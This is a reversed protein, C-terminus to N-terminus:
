FDRRLVYGLAVLSELTAVAAYLRQDRALQQKQALQQEQAHTPYSLLLMEVLVSSGAVVGQGALARRSDLAVPAGGGEVERLLRVSTPAMELKLKAIVADKLDGADAGDGVEVKCFDDHGAMTKVFVHLGRVSRLRFAEPAYAVPPPLPMRLTRRSLMSATIRLM